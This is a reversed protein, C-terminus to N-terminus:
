EQPSDISSSSLAAGNRTMLYVASGRPFSTPDSSEAIREIEFYDGFRSEVEGPVFAMRAHFPREWWRPEWEFGFLLFRSGKRTLPLINKIYLDRNDGHLDDLTGYDVLLDYIGSVNKLNTLDDQIFHVQVGAEQARTHGLEVASAAYDVGTVDFGHQALFICNSATGSGLDIVKCPAIRGSEVLNVLEERPGIDWPMQFFRYGLEYFLKM